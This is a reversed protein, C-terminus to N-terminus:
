RMQTQGVANALLGAAVLFRPSSVPHARRRMVELLLLTCAHGRCSQGHGLGQHLKEIVLVDFDVAHLAFEDSPHKGNEAVAVHQAQPLRQLLVAALQDHMLTAVFLAHTVGGHAKGLLVQPALDVGTRGRDTRARRVHNGGSGSGRGVADRQQQQRAIHIGAALRIRHQLLDFLEMVQADAGVVRELSYAFVPVTDVARFLQHAGRQVGHAHEGVRGFGASDGQGQRLVYLAFGIVVGIREQLFAHM